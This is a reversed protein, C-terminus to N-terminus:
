MEDAPRMDSYSYYHGLLKCDYTGSSIIKQSNLIRIENFVLSNTARSLAGFRQYFNSVNSIDIKQDQCSPFAFVIQESSDECLKYVGFTAAANFQSVSNQYIELFLNEKGGYRETVNGLQNVVLQIQTGSCTWYTPIFVDKCGGLFTVILIIFYKQYRM